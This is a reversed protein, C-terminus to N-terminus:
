IMKKLRSLLGGQDAGGALSSLAPIQKEVAKMIDPSLKKSLLDMALPLFAKVTDANFGIQGFNKMLGAAAGAKDGLLSGALGTLSSMVSPEAKGAAAQFGSIITSANPVAQSVKGFLDAPLNGKLSSLLAGVGQEAQATSLGAKSALTSIFDSM